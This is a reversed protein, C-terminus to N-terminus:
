YNGGQGKERAEVQGRLYERYAPDKPLEDVAEADESPIEEKYADVFEDDSM